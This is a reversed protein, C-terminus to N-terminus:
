GSLAVLQELWLQMLRTRDVQHHELWELSTHEAFGLWGYLRLQTLPDDGLGLLLQIRQLVTRRVREILASVEADMGIGGRLLARYMAANAEIFDLFQLLTRELTGHVDDGPAFTLRTLLEDALSQVTAVYYERKGPFYHYLLGKSIGAERAIDDTSIADYAQTSFLRRGLAILQGRREESTQRTM